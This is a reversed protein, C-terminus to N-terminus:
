KRAFHTERAIADIDENSLVDEVTVGEPILEQIALLFRFQVEAAEMQARQQRIPRDLDDRTCQGLPKRVGRRPDVSIMWAHWGGVAVAVQERQQEVATEREQIVQERQQADEPTWRHADSSVAAGRLLIKKHNKAQKSRQESVRRSIEHTVASEAWEAFGEPDETQFRKATERAADIPFAYEGELLALCYEVPNFKM